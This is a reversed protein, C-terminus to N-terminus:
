IKLSPSSDLFGDPLLPNHLDLSCFYKPCPQLALPSHITRSKPFLVWTDQTPGGGWREGGVSSIGGGWSRPPLKIWSQTFASALTVPKSIPM